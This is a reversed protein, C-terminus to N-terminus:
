KAAAADGDDDDHPIAWETNVAERGYKANREAIAEALLGAADEDPFERTRKLMRVRGYDLFLLGQKYKVYANVTNALARYVDDKRGRVREGKKTHTSTIIVRSEGTAKRETYERMNAIQEILIDIMLKAAPIDRKASREKHLTANNVIFDEYFHLSGMTILLKLTDDSAIKTKASTTFGVKGEKESLVECNSFINSCRKILRKLHDQERGLNNEFVYFITAHRLNPDARIANYNDVFAKEIHEGPSQFTDAYRKTTKIPIHAASFSFSLSLFLFFSFPRAITRALTIALSLALSRSLSLSRSYSLCLFVNGADQGHFRYADAGCVQM